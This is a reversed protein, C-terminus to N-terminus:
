LSEEMFKRCQAFNGKFVVESWDSEIEKNSYLAEGSKGCVNEDVDTVYAFCSKGTHAITVYMTRCHQSKKKGKIFTWVDYGVAMAFLVTLVAMLVLVEPAEVLTCLATAVAAGCLDIVNRGRESMTM